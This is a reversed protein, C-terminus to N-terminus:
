LLLSAPGIAVLILWALATVVLWVKFARGPGDRVIRVRTTM